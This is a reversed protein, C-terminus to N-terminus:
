KGSNAQNNANYRDGHSMDMCGLGISSVTQPSMVGLNRTKM